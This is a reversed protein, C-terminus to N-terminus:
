SSAISAELGWRLCLTKLNKHKQRQAPKWFWWISNMGLIGNKKIMLWQKKQVRGMSSKLGGKQLMQNCSVPVLRDSWCIWAKGCELFHSWNIEAVDLIIIRCLFNKPIGLISGQTAPDSARISGRNLAATGVENYRQSMASIWCCKLRLTWFISLISNIRKEDLISSILVKAIEDSNLVRDWNLSEM